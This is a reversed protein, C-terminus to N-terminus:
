AWGGHETMGHDYFGLIGRLGLPLVPVGFIVPIVAMPLSHRGGWFSTIKLLAVGPPVSFFAPWVSGNLLFAVTQGRHPRPAIRLLATVAWRRTMGIGMNKLAFVGMALPASPMPPFCPAQLYRPSYGLHRLKMAADRKGQAIWHDCM